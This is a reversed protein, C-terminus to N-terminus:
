ELWTSLVVIAIAVVGSLMLGFEGERTIHTGYWSNDIMQRYIDKRKM